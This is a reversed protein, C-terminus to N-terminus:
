LTSALDRESYDAVALGPQCSVGVSHVAISSCVVFFAMFTLITADPAPHEELCDACGFM